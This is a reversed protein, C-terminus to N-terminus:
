RLKERDREAFHSRDGSVDVVFGLRHWQALFEPKTEIKSGNPHRAWPVRDASGHAIVDDPRHTPWWTMVDTSQLSPDASANYTVTEKSCDFFDAQWPLAMQRTFCGARLAADHKIRFPEEYVGPNRILWGVEQGPFFAGGVAAQLAAFDLGDPTISSETPFPNDTWDAVFHGSGWRRLIEYQTATISLFQGEPADPGDFTDGRYQDGFLMPMSATAGKPASTGVPPRLYRFILSRADPLQTPDGLMGWVEAAVSYHKTAAEGFVFRSLLARALIPQVDHAFSPRYDPNSKLQALRWLRSGVVDYGSNGEVPLSSMAVDVMRDYLSVVPDMHPSFKPPAVVVWAGGADSTPKGELCARETWGGLQVKTGDHFSVVATVPGDAVDDFWGDYNAFNDDVLPGGRHNARARGHGGFVLLRGAEDTRLEGLYDIVKEGDDEDNMTPWSEHEPHAGPTFQAATANRGSISRSMPDIELRRRRVRPDKIAANRLAPVARRVHPAATPDGLAGNFRYYSAKTNALHVTWEISKVDPDDLTVERWRGLRADAVIEYRFVRFRAAQRKIGAARFGEGGRGADPLPPVGPLEPGVFWAEASDGVRAIGVAPHIKFIATATQTM